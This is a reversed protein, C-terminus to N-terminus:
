KFLALTKSICFLSKNILFVHNTRSAHTALFILESLIKAKEIGCSM